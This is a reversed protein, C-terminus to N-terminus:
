FRFEKKRLRLKVVECKMDLYVERDNLMTYINGNIWSVFNLGWSRTALLLQTLPHIYINNQTRAATGYWCYMIIYHLAGMRVGRSPQSWLGAWINSIDSGRQQPNSTLVSSPNSAAAPGTKQWDQDEKGRVWMLKEYKKDVEDLAAHLRANDAIKSALEESM